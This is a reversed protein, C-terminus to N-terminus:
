EYEIIFEKDTQILKKFIRTCNEQSQKELKMLKANSRLKHKAKSELYKRIGDSWYGQEQFVETESPTIVIDLIKTRPLKLWLTDENQAVTYNTDTLDIGYKVEGKFILTLRKNVNRYYMKALETPDLNTLSLESKDYVVTDVVVEDKYSITSLEAITRISEVHIPTDDIILEDESSTFYWVLILLVASLLGLGILNKILRQYDRM